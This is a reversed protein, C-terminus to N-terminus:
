RVGDVRDRARALFGFGGRMRARMRANMRDNARAVVVSSARFSTM